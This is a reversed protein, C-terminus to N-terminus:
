TEMAPTRQGPVGAAVDPRPPAIGPEWTPARLVGALLTVVEAPPLPQSWLWGQGLRCGLEALRVHQAVTEVGEALVRLGMTRGLEVVARLLAGDQGTGAGHRVFAKDLKLVDVPLAQLYALSSYGVGFDDLAVQLGMERLIRLRDGVAALNSLVHQETVELTLMTGQAGSATLAAAVDEVLTPRSLLAPSMNVHIRLPLGQRHWDVATRCAQGLVFLDLDALQGRAQAVHLFQDPLLRGLQPHLWRILAEAAVAQGTYLDVIPQYDVCIAGDALAGPLDEALQAENVVLARMSSDFVTVGGKGSRKTAYMAIDANSLSTTCDSELRALGISAGVNVQSGDPLAVPLGVSIALDQALRAAADEDCDTLLIAFEDGSLRAVLDTNRVGALLRRAVEELLSDGAQHGRTDNVVKFDDLDILLLAHQGRGTLEAARELLQARNPLKTLLDYLAQRRLEGALQERQALTLHLRQMASAHQLVLQALRVVVFAVVLTVGVPLVASTAAQGSGLANAALLLSPALVASLLLGLRIRSSLDEPVLHVSAASPALLVLVMVTLQAAPVLDVVSGPRYSENLLDVRYVLDGLMCLLQGCIFLLCERVARRSSMVLVFGVLVVLDLMALVAPMLMAPTTPFSADLVTPLAVLSMGLTVTLVDLAGALVADGKRAGLRFLSIVLLTYAPVSMLFGLPGGALRGPPPGPLAVDWILDPLVFAVASAAVWRMWPTRVRARVTVWVAAVAMPVSWMQVGVARALEARALARAPDVSAPGALWRNAALFTVAYGVFGIALLLEPRRSRVSVPM